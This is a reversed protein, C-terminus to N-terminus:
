VSFRPRLLCCVTKTSTTMLSISRSPLRVLDLKGPLHRMLTLQIVPDDCSDLQIVPDDNSDLHIVPAKTYSGSRIPAEYVQRQVPAEFSQRQVPAIYSDLQIVPSMVSSARQIPAEYSQRQVPAKCADGQVLVENSDRQIPAECCDFKPVEYHPNIEFFHFNGFQINGRMINM